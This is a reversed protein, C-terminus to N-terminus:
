VTNAIEGHLCNGVCSNKTEHKKWIQSNIYPNKHRLPQNKYSGVFEIFFKKGGKETVHAGCLSDYVIQM